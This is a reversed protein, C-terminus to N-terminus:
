EVEFVEVAVYQAPLSLRMTGDTTILLHAGPEIVTNYTTTADSLWVIVPENTADTEMLFGEETMETVVGSIQQGRIHEAWVQAPLSFTMRGDYYVTVAMGEQIFTLAAPDANVQVQEGNECNLLFSAFGGEKDFVIDSVLGTLRHSTVRDAFLQAPISRSMLGNCAVEVWDGVMLTDGLLLETNESLMAKYLNGDFGKFVIYADNTELVLGSLIVEEEQEDTTINLDGPTATMEAQVMLCCALLLLAVTLAILKKM